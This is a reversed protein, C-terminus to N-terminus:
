DVLPGRGQRLGHQWFDLRYEVLGEILAESTEQARDCVKKHQFISPAPHGRQLSAIREFLAEIAQHELRYQHHHQYQRAVIRVVAFFWLSYRELSVLQGM